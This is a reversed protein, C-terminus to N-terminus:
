IMDANICDIKHSYMACMTKKKESRGEEIAMDEGRRRPRKEEPPPAAIPTDMLSTPRWPLWADGGVGVCAWGDARCWRPDEEVM